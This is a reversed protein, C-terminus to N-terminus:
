SHKDSDPPGEGSSMQGPSGPDPGSAPLSLQGAPGDALSLQGAKSEALSLQGTEPSTLSLQGASAGQRRAQIQAVAQRVARQFRPEWSAAFAEELPLVAATSGCDGLAIAAAESVEQSRRLAAILPAEAAPSGTDALAKAARRALLGEESALVRSLRAVVAEGAGPVWVSLVRTFRRLAIHPCRASLFQKPGPWRCSCDSLPSREHRLSTTSM